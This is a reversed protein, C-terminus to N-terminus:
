ELLYRELEGKFSLRVRVRVRVRIWQYSIEKISDTGDILLLCRYAEVKFRSVQIKLRSDQAPV